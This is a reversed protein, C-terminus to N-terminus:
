RAEVVGGQHGRVGPRAPVAPDACGLTLEVADPRFVRVGVSGDEEHAGLVRHPDPDEAAAIREIANM